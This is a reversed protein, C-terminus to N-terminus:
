RALFERLRANVADPKEHVVWHSADKFRNITLKSVHRDLGDLNGPLLYRDQEGWLVLTPVDIRGTPIDPDERLLGSLPAAKYYSIMGRMADPQGWAQLYANVDRQDFYGHKLGRDLIPRLRKFNNESLMREAWPMRMFLVYSSAIGQRWNRRLERKMMAPHPANIIVLKNLRQPAISAVRWAIVGGWDHGVLSFRSAGFHDALAVIDQAVEGARYDRVDEPKSSLNYGRMDVAVARHTEGIADLQRRWAYWFEPFGHLFVVLEGTGREAYHLRVGRVEAMGHTCVM